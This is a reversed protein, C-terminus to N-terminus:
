QKDVVATLEKVLGEPNEEAMWHCSGPITKYTVNEAVEHTM